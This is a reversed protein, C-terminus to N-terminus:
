PRPSMCFIESDFGTETVDAVYLNYSDTEICEYVEFMTSALNSLWYDKAPFEERTFWAAASAEPGCLPKVPHDIHARFSIYYQNMPAISSLFFPILTSQPIQLGVEEHIERVAAERMSEGKEPYGGPPAWKGVYPLIARKMLLISKNAIILTSVTVTPSEYDVYGCNPCVNREVIDGVPISRSLPNACIRCYIKAEIM